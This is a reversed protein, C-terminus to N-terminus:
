LTISKMMERSTLEDVDSVFCELVISKDSVNCLHNVVDIYDEKSYASYYTFGLSEVFCKISSMESNGFHERAAIYRKDKLDMVHDAAIQEMGGDNNIVVIRVNNLIHRNGLINMDYFFSLDGIFAYYLKLPNMLSAGILASITGDIGFGGVTAYTDITRKVRLYNWSRLTSIIGFYVVSDSPLKDVTNAAIWMNSFPLDPIKNMLENYQNYFYGNILSNKKKRRANYEYFFTEEKCEFVKTLNFFPDRLRGEEDIRWVEKAKFHVDGCADGMIIMLDFSYQNQKREFLLQEPIGFDGGYNSTQDYFVEIEYKECFDNVLEILANNWKKHAAIFLGKKKTDPIEPFFRPETIRKIVRANPLTRTNFDESFCTILNIHVPGGKKHELESLARNIIIEAYRRDEFTNITPLEVSIRVTDSPPQRRDTVQSVDNGIKESRQSSTIAVVPIHRYYAETMASMYNRSATAGTCSLAVPRNTELAIGIAVYGASREDIVSVLKFFPDSQVSMVFGMNSTGPSIVITKIGYEKLYAILLQHNKESTYSGDSFLLYSDNEENVKTAIMDCSYVDCKVGISRIKEYIAIENIRSTIVVATSNQNLKKLVEPSQVVWIGVTNGYKSSDSDVVYINTGNLWSWDSNILGKGAGWLVINEYKANLEDCLIM